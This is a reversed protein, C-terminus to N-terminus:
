QTRRFQLGMGWGKAGTGATDIDITMKSDDAITANAITSQTLATVSTLESVDITPTITFVSVGDDNLDFAPLGSSSATVLNVRVALLTCAPLRFTFKATGTSITATQDTQYIWLWEGGFVGGTATLAGTVTVDGGVVLDDTVNADEYTPNAFGFNDRTWITVGAATKLVWKYNEDTLIFISAEGRSNLAIPNENASNGTADTYTAKPTTTGVVYTYLLGGTLPDGNSDFFQHTPVPALAVTPM